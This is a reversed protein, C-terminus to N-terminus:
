IDYISREDKKKSSSDGSLACYIFVGVVVILSMIPDVPIM